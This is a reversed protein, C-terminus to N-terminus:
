FNRTWITLHENELFFYHPFQLLSKRSICTYIMLIVTDDSFQGLNPEKQLHVTFMSPTCQMHKGEDKCSGTETITANLRIDDDPTWLKVVVGSEEPQSLESDISAIDDDDANSSTEVDDPKELPIELDLLCRIYAQSKLFTGYFSEEGLIEYVQAQCDDFCNPSPEEQTICKFIKKPLEKSLVIRPNAKIDKVLCEMEFIPELSNDQKFAM